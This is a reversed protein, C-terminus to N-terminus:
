DYYINSVVYYYAEEENGGSDVFNQNYEDCLQEAREINNAFCCVVDRGLDIDKRLVAYMMQRNKLKKSM